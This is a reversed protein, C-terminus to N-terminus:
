DQEQADAHAQWVGAIRRGCSSCQGQGNIRIDQTHTFVNRKIVTVNCGPCATDNGGPVSLNGIYVYNLGEAAGIQRAKELTGPPTRPKQMRHAPMFRSIHWPIDPDIDAIFRAIGRLEADSDNYSPIILTTVEIWIGRDYYNQIAELVPALRAGCVKRYTDDNFFKLDINAAHLCPAIDDLAEETIYGNTIFVNKLGKAVALRATDYAYEFFITPETYTYAISACAHNAAASVIDECPLDIGLIREDDAPAQAIHVNQCHLCRFNCGITAISFADSGPLFHYLPKKEIPDVQQAVSRGYVLSYLTGSENWRVGCIGRHGEPILCRHCCLNCQVRKGERPEWHRARHM